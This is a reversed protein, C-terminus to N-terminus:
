FICIIFVHNLEAKVFESELLKSGHPVYNTKITEYYEFMYRSLADIFSTELENIIGRGGMKKNYRKKIDNAIGDIADCKFTLEIFREKRMSDRLKNLKNEVIKVILKDDIFNFPVINKEGIRNLIEPRGLENEFHNRVASMFHKRIKAEDDDPSISDGSTGINSTFIIFTESFDITEGQSSTLRGDELIQLFKDLIRGNAKEIEDFLLISFPKEKVANTLEGGADYGVYGPPAGILRQDSHEQNFESMDFRIIRNEDGFVFESIAKALETKGTGTPGVLFLVGKPKRNNTTSHLVGNMGTFSRILTREVCSIAYDQGKVKNTLFERMRKMNDFDINEWESEKKNFAVLNYLEKFSLGSLEPVANNDIKAYQFMERFSMGESLTIVENYDQHEPEKATDILSNFKSKYKNFFEKREKKDPKLLTISAFETNNRTIFQNISDPTRALIVLKMKNKHFKTPTQKSFAVFSEILKAIHIADTQANRDLLVDSCEIIYLNQYEADKDNRIAGIEKDIDGIFQVINAQQNLQEEAFGFEDDQDNNKEQDDEQQHLYDVIGINPSFYKIVKYDLSKATECLHSVVNTFEGKCQSTKKTTLPSVDKYGKIDDCIIENVNGSCIVINKQELKVWLQQLSKYFSM